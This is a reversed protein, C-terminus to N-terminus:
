NVKKGGGQPKPNSHHQGQPQSGGKNAPKNGGTNAPKYAPKNGGTNAPKNVPKNEGGNTAPKNAPKNEGGTTAPKEGKNGFGGNTKAGGLKSNTAAHGTSNFPHGGVKDMAAAAPHGHNASAFQSKDTSAVKQHNMQEATPQIHPQRMAAVEEPRPKAVVGGPGNFSSHSNGYTNHVVTNDVYTNHVISVNVNVVATNYQFHGGSWRGGGYGYGGYGFGYNVGGYFGISTGWYGGHFGYHGGEFGWYAPTWLYGPQPAAVWVGPVWYYGGDDAYAWYGPVWMYGDVPCAPQVYVPLEPPAIGVSISLSIQANAKSLALSAILLLAFVKVIKKM